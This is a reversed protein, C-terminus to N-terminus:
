EKVSPAQLIFQWAPWNRVVSVVQLLQMIFQKSHWSMEVQETQLWPYSNSGISPMQLNVLQLGPRYLSSVPPWGCHRGHWLVQREHEPGLSALQVEQADGAKRAPIEGFLHMEHLSPSRFTSDSFPESKAQLTTRGSQVSGFRITFLVHLDGNLGSAANRAWFWIM